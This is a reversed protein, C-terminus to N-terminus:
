IEGFLGEYLEHAKMLDFPPPARSSVEAGTLERCRTRRALQKERRRREDDTREPWHTSDIWSSSDLGCRLVAVRETLAKTGLNSRVWRSSTKTVAWIFTEEPTPKAEPTDLFLVLTEDPHLFAQVEAITMPAPSVLAAYDPFDKALTKDIEGIRRDIAALRNGIAREAEADRHNPAETRAAILAKDKVHWEGVLDQRERVIRALNGNGTAGRAAMQAVSQAAETASAWQATEFMKDSFQAPEAGAQRHTAKILGWFQFSARKAEDKGDLGTTTTGRRARRVIVDTSKQWYSAAGAWDAQVFQLVALNNLSTAVSPHDPGLNKVLIALTRQHLVGAEAYQGQIEYLAALNNLAPVVDPHEPGRSKELVTVARKYLVEADAYRRQSEYVAALSNLFTGVRPDDFGRARESISLARELLPEAEAYRSQARYVVALNNLTDAVEVHDPGLAAERIVLARKYLPESEGYRGMAYYLGALRNINTAVDPHDPGLTKDRIALSRKYLPEAPAYLGQVRYLEALDDLSRVVEPHDSGFRQEAEALARLAVPVAEAYKGAGYLREIEQNLTKIDDVAQSHAARSGALAFSLAVMVIASLRWTM